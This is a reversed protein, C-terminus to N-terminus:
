DIPLPPGLLEMGCARYLAPETSYPTDNRRKKSEAFFAEMKGPPTYARLLWGPANGVFAWAHPVERPGFISDGPKLSHRDTGVEVLYEGGIVYLWEDQNHHLHRPPGSRKHNNHEMVFLANPSGQTAPKFVSSGMSVPSDKAYRDRTATVFAATVSAATQLSNAFLHLPLATIALGLFSRREMDPM